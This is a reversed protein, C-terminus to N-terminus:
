DDWVPLELIDAPSMSLVLVGNSLELQDFGVVRDDRGLDAHDDDFDIALATPTDAGTGLVEEVEGIVIGGADAVDLDDLADVTMQFESVMVKDDIEVLTQASAPLALTVAFTTTLLFRM